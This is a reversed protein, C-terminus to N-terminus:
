KAKYFMSNDIKEKAVLGSKLLVRLGRYVTARNIGLSEVLSHANMPGCDALTKHIRISTSSSEADEITFLLPKPHHLKFDIREIVKASRQTDCNLSYAKEKKRWNMMLIHDAFAKWVFSGYIANDGEDIMEGTRNNRIGRHTHHIIVLSANFRGVLGRVNGIWARAAKADKMDGSMSMYLPDIFVVDPRVRHEELLASLEDLGRKTDLEMGPMFLHTFHSLDCDVGEIMNALREQTEYRKGETQIYLVKCKEFVQFTDLFEEGTTLACALQLSLISKGVKERGLVFVTDGRWLLHDVLPKRREDAVKLVDEGWYIGYESM